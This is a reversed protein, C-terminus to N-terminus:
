LGVENDPDALTFVTAEQYTHDTHDPEHQRAPATCDARDILLM